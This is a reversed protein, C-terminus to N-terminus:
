KLEQYIKLHAQVVKEIGFEREALKRGAAGMSQRLETDDLLREIADALSTADRVPVLLGTVNPKIADRCGPVDTTIVARGCAAAEILVKPFGERYSPLVILNTCAFIDAIDTRYGLPTIVEEKRWREVDEYSISSPNGPDPEGLLWFHAQVSREKLIRAAEVFELVGKERLLRSAFAVIPKSEPEPQFPYDTLSVGSGHVLISQNERVAGLGVLTAQDDPNQFIATLHPHGLAMRYLLVVGYRQWQIFGRSAVFVHGLGSIAAVVAPVGTLRAMLGGYLVPKITVLHLLDPRLRRFLRWLAWLSYFERWPATSSRSIPVCHYEFGMRKIEASNSEPCAVHVAYGAERAALALPLRHSLFFASANVIILLKM